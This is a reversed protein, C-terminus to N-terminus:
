TEEVTYDIKWRGNMVPTYVIPPIFRVEYVIGDQENTWNFALSGGRVQNEFARFTLMDATSVYPANRKWKRPANRTFRARTARYGNERKSEITPDFSSQQDAGSMQSCVSNMTPFSIDSM